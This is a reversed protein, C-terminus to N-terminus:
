LLWTRGSDLKAVTHPARGHLGMETSIETPHRWNHLLISQFQSASHFQCLLPRLSSQGITHLRMTSAGGPLDPTHVDHTTAPEVAGNAKKPVHSLAYM